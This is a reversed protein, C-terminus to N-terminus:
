TKKKKVEHKSQTSNEDLFRMVDPICFLIRQLPNQIQNLFNMHEHARDFTWHRSKRKNQLNCSSAQNKHFGIRKNQKTKTHLHKKGPLIRVLWFREWCQHNIAKVLFECDM